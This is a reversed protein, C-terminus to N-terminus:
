KGGTEKEGIASGTRPQGVEEGAVVEGIQQDAPSWLHLGDLWSGRAGRGYWVMGGVTYFRCWVM